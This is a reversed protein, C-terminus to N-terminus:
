PTWSFNFPYHMVGSDQHVEITSAFIAGFVWNQNAVTVKARPAVVTGYVTNVSIAQTGLYGILTDGIISANTDSITGGNIVLSSKIFVRGPGCNSDITLQGGQNITLRDIFYTTGCALTLNAGWDVTVNTVLKNAFAADLTQKQSQFLHIAPSTTTPFTVALDWAPLQSFTHPLLTGQISNGRQISGNVRLTGDIRARDAVQMPANFFSSGVFSEVGLRGASGAAISAGRSSTTDVVRARDNVFTSGKSNLAFSTNSGVSPFGVQQILFDRVGAHGGTSAKISNSETNCWADIRSNGSAVGVLAPAGNVTCFLGGGSDGKATIAENTVTLLDQRWVPISTCPGECVDGCFDHYWQPVLNGFRRTGAGEGSSPHVNGGYGAVVCPLQLTTDNIAALPDSLFLPQPTAVAAPVPTALTLVAIDFPDPMPDSCDLTYGPYLAPPAAAAFTGGGQAFSVSIAAPSTTTPCLFCHAATVVKTPTVLTGSCNGVQVVSVLATAGVPGASITTGEATNGGFVPQALTKVTESDNVGEGGEADGGCGNAALLGIAFLACGSMGKVVTM